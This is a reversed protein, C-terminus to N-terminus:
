ESPHNVIFSERADLIIKAGVNPNTCYTYTFNNQEGATEVKIVGFNFITAFIGEKHSTVDHINTMLIESVKRNFIGIQNVLVVNRTTVILKSSNYIWTALLLFIIVLVLSIFGFLGVVLNTTTADLGLTDTVSPLLFVILFLSVMLAFVAQLYIVIIGFPHRRIETLKQEGESLSDVAVKKASPDVGGYQDQM